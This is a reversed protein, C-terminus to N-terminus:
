AHALANRIAQDCRVLVVVYPCTDVGAWGPLAQCVKERRRRAQAPNGTSVYSAVDRGVGTLRQLCRRQLWLTGLQLPGNGTSCNALNKETRAIM